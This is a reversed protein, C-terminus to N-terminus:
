TFQAVTATQEPHRACGLFYFTGRRFAKRHALTGPLQLILAMRTRCVACARFEAGQVWAPSTGIRAQDIPEFEFSERGACLLYSLLEEPYAACIAGLAARLEPSRKVHLAPAFVNRAKGSEGRYRPVAVPRYARGLLRTADPGGELWRFQVDSGADVAVSRGAWPFDALGPPLHVVNPAEAVVDNTRALIFGTPAERGAAEVARYVAELDTATAAAAARAIVIRKHNFRILVAALLALVVFAALGLLATASV